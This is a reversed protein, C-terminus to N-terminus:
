EPVWDDLKSESGNVSLWLWDAVSEEREDLGIEGREEVGFDEWEELGSEEWEELGLDEESLSEVELSVGGLGLFRFISCILILPSRLLVVSSLRSTLDVFGSIIM